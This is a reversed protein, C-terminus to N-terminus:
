GGFVLTCIPFPPPPPSLPRRPDAPKARLRISPWMYAARTSHNPKFQFHRNPVSRFNLTIIVMASPHNYHRGNYIAYTSQIAYITTPWKQASSIHRHSTIQRFIGNFENAMPGGLPPTCSDKFIRPLYERRVLRFSTKRRGRCCCCRCECLFHDTVHNCSLTLMKHGDLHSSFECEVPNSVCLFEDFGVSACRSPRVLTPRLAVVLGTGDWDSRKTWSPHGFCQWCDSCNWKRHSATRQCVIRAHKHAHPARRALIQEPEGTSEHAPAKDTYATRNCQRIQESKGREDLPCGSRQMCKNAFHIIIWWKFLLLWAGANANIGFTQRHNKM